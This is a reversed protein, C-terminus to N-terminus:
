CGFSRDGNTKCITLYIESGKNFVNAFVRDGSLQATNTVDYKTIVSFCAQCVSFDMIDDFAKYPESVSRFCLGYGGM